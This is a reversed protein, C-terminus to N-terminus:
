SVKYLVIRVKIPIVVRSSLSVVTYYIRRQSNEVALRAHNWTSLSVAGYGNQSVSARTGYRWGKPIDDAESDYKYGMTLIAWNDIDDISDTINTYYEQIGEVGVAPNLTFLFKKINAAPVSESKKYVEAKTYTNALGTTLTAISDHADGIGTEIHNMNDASLPTSDNTWTTKTYAM